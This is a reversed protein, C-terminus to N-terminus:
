VLTYASAIKTSGDKATYAFGAETITGEYTWRGVKATVKSSKTVRGKPNSTVLHAMGPLQQTAFTIPDTSHAMGGDLVTVSAGLRAATQLLGKTRADHGPAFLRRTEATCETQLYTWGAEDATPDDLYGRQSAPLTKPDTDGPIDIRIQGCLCPHPERIKTSTM